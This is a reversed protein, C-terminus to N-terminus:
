NFFPHLLLHRTTVSVTGNFCGRYYPDPNLMCQILSLANASLHVPINYNCETILKYTSHVSETEFPPGGCLLAYIMCGISWIESAISHGKKALIEPAVYNPTGCMSITPDSFTTALGFDGIKVCMGSSLFMNGLKLDRHLVQRSHIYGVGSFIQKLYYKVEYESIVQRLKNVSLLTQHPALELILHIFDEDEFSKLFRIVNKHRLRSHIFIETKVKALGNEKKAILSKSMVKAALQKHTRDDTVSFVKAFGGTGLLQGVSYVSAPHQSFDEIISPVEYDLRCKIRSISGNNNNQDSDSM